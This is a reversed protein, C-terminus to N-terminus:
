STPDSLHEAIRFGVYNLRYRPYSGSRFAVRMNQLVDDFAGGRLSRYIDGGRWLNQVWEWVNGSMDHTGCEAMGRPFAGVATTRGVGAEESNIIGDHWKDGWPYERGDTHRSAREWEADIPLRYARGTKQALWNAYAMAELWSVGVVPKNDITWEANQWYHPETWNNRIRWEWGVDTWCRRWKETYGGDEVFYRYQANTVSHRAIAFANVHMQRKEDGMLFTGAPIPIMDPELTCVGPRPDGLLGLADGAEARQRPTLAAAALLAVLQERLRPLLEQGVEDREAAERGVVLMMEAALWVRYWGASDDPQPVRRPMMQEIGDLAKERNNQNFVLTGAALNLVERWMDGQAALKAAERGFRRQSALHCAALYEQFTRHPFTYVRETLGGRGVLLHARRETYELFQEAKGLSGLQERAIQLVDWEPIDAANDREIAKSHAEWGIQWLLRELDAQGIGLRALVSPMEGSEGEKHRQWRLLLTEVCVQYLRAREDPLTGYYTQVLAMITLLMPNSALPQLQKRQVANQLRTTMTGAQERSLEGSGVLAAYWSEIFHSVQAEDLQRLTQSPVDAPTEQADFSLSRCTVVWRNNGYPGKELERIAQWIDPRQAIPVKDVGDLLFFIGGMKAIKELPLAAEALDEQELKKAVYHWLANPSLPKFESRVFDRLEIIIPIPMDSEWQRQHIQHAKFDASLPANRGYVIESEASAYKREGVTWALKALWDAEGHYLYGALCHALFRLITSKGSGPDGLLILRRHHYIHALTARYFEHAEYADPEGEPLIRYALDANLNVFVQALSIHSGEKGAPDLPGLPLRGNRRVVIELYPRLAQPVHPMGPQWSPLADVLTELGGRRVFYAILERAKDRKGGPALNEYDVGLKFCLERLESDNLQKDLRQLLAAQDIENPEPEHKPSKKDPM